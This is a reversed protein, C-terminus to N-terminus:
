IRKTYGTTLTIGALYLYTLFATLAPLFAIALLIYAAVALAYGTKSKNYWFNVGVLILIAGYIYLSAYTSQRMYVENHPELAGYILYIVGLLTLHLSTLKRLHDVNLKREMKSVTM